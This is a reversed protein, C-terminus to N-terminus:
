ATESRTKPKRELSDVPREEVQLQAHRYLRELLRTEGGSLIGRLLWEGRTRSARKVASGAPADRHRAGCRQLRTCGAGQRCIVRDQPPPSAEARAHTPPLFSTPPSVITGCAGQSVGEALSFLLLLLLLLAFGRNEADTM